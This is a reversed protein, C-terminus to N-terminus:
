LILAIPHSQILHHTHSQLRINWLIGIIRHHHRSFQLFQHLYYSITYRKLWVHTGNSCSDLHIAIIQGIVKFKHLTSTQYGLKMLGCSSHTTQAFYFLHIKIIGVEGKSERRRHRINAILSLSEKKILHTHIM